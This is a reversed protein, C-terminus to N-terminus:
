RVFRKDVRECIYQEVEQIVTERDDPKLGKYKRHAIVKNILIVWSMETLTLGTREETFTFGGPPVLNRNRLM